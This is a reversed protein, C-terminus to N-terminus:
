VAKAAQMFRCATSRGAGFVVPRPGTKVVRPSATELGLKLAALAAQRPTRAGELVPWPWAAGHGRGAASCRDLLRRSPSAVYSGATVSAM